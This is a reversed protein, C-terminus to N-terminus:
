TVSTFLQDAFEPRAMLVSVVGGRVGYTLDCRVATPFKLNLLPLRATRIIRGGM